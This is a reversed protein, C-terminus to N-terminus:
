RDGQNILNRLIQAGQGLPWDDLRALSCIALKCLAKAGEASADQGSAITRYEDLADLFLAEGAAAHSDILSNRITTYNTNAAHRFLTTKGM